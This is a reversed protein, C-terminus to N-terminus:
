LLDYLEFSKENLMKAYEVLNALESNNEDFFQCYCYLVYTMSTIEKTLDALKEIEKDKM